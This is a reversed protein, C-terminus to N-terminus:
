QESSAAAGLARCARLRRAADNTAAFAARARADAACPHDAAGAPAAALTLVAALVAHRM